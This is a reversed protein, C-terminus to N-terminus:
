LTVYSQSVTSESPIFSPVFPLQLADNPQHYLDPEPIGRETELLSRAEMLNKARDQDDRKSDQAIIQEKSTLLCNHSDCPLISRFNITRLRVPWKTLYM